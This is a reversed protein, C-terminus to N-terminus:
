MSGKRDDGAVLSNIACRSSKFGEKNLLFIGWGTVEGKVDKFDIDGM